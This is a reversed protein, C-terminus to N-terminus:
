KLHWRYTVIVLTKSPDVNPDVRPIFFCRSPVDVACLKTPTMNFWYSIFVDQAAALAAPLLAFLLLSRLSM